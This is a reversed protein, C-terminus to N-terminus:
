DVRQIWGRHVQGARLIFFRLPNFSPLDPHNLVFVVNELSVTEWQHLGILIDGRQIGAKAAAGDPNVDMVMLGGHLQSNNHAVVESRVSSVRLGLKRWVLESAQPAPQEVTQLVLELRKEDGNRNILVPVKDGAARDLLARELDLSCTLRLDGVQLLTDGVQIGARAAPSGPETREVVLSRPPTPWDLPSSKAASPQNPADNGDTPKVVDRCVLGHWTGNRKRISLMDAAVRLM